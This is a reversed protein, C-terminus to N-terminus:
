FPQNNNTHKRWLINSIRSMMEPNLHSIDNNKGVVNYIFPKLTALEYKNDEFKETYISRNQKLTDELSKQKEELADLKKLIMDLKNTIDSETHDKIVIWDEM